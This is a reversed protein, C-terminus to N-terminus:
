IADGFAILNWWESDTFTNGSATVLQLNIRCWDDEMSWWPNQSGYSPTYAIGGVTMPTQCHSGVQYAIADETGMDGDFQISFTGTAEDTVLLLSIMM